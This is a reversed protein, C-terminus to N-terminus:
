YELKVQLFLDSLIFSAATLSLSVRLLSPKSHIVDDPSDALFIALYLGIHVMYATVCEICVAWCRVKDHPICGVKLTLSSLRFM